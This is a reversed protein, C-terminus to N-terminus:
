RDTCSGLERHLRVVDLRDGEAGTPEEEFVDALLREGIAPEAKYTDTDQAAQHGTACNGTSFVQSVQVEVSYAWVAEAAALTHRGGLVVKVSPRQM